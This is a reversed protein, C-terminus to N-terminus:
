VLEAFFTNKPAPKMSSLGWLSYRLFKVDDPGAAMSNKMVKMALIPNLIIEFLYLDYAESTDVIDKNANM